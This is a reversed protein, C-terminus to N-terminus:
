VFFKDTYIMKKRDEESFTVHGNNVFVYYKGERNLETYGHTRLENAVQSDSTKIFQQKM